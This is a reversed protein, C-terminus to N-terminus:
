NSSTQVEDIVLLHRDDLRERRVVAVFPVKLGPHAIRLLGPHPTHDIAGPRYLGSLMELATVLRPQIAAPPPPVTSWQHHRDLLKLTFEGYTDTFEIRASVYNEWALLTLLAQAAEVADVCDPLAAAPQAPNITNLVLEVVALRAEETLERGYLVWDEDGWKYFSIIRDYICQLPWGHLDVERGVLAKLTVRPDPTADPDVAFGVVGGPGLGLPVAKHRMALVRPFMGVLRTRENGGPPTMRAIDDSSDHRLPQANISLTKHNKLMPRLRPFVRLIEEIAVAAERKVDDSPDAAELGDLTELAARARLWGLATAAQARLEALDNVLFRTLIPVARMDGLKGMLELLVALREHNPQELTFNALSDFIEAGRHLLREFVKEREDRNREEEFVLLAEFQFRFPDSSSHRESPM